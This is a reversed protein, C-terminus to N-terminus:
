WWNLVDEAFGIKDKIELETGDDLVVKGSFLGFVQHQLSKILILNTNAQRDVLPKFDMEFRGDNSTFKWPKMYDKTDIIFDVEDLKHLKERYFVANESAPTRDSFGYGINFGFPKGEHFASMSGWYWRNRYTWRGRGWDLGALSDEKKFTYSESGLTVVGEAPMCTYKQNYYFAKRNERWSTAINVSDKERDWCLKLDATLGKSGDPCKFIPSEAKIHRVKDDVECTIKLKKDEFYVSGVDPESSLNTKGFPLIGMTDTQSYVGKEFDLWCIAFLSIYGLDSITFTIGYKGDHSIIYYYDWEKIKLSSAAIKSRDYKWFPRRGWGEKTIFGKEDLLDINEKIENQAM